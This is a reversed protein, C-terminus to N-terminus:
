YCTFSFANGVSETNVKEVRKGRVTEMNAKGGVQKVNERKQRDEWMYLQRQQRRKDGEKKLHTQTQARLQLAQGQRTATYCFGRQQGEERAEGGEAPQVESTQVAEEHGSSEEGPLLVSPLYYVTQSSFM